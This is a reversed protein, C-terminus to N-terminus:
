AHASAHVADTSETERLLHKNESDSASPNLMNCDLKEIGMIQPDRSGRQPKMSKTRRQRNVPMNPSILM